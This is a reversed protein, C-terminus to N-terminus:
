VWFSFAMAASAVGSMEESRRADESTLPAASASSVM